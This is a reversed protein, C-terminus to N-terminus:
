LNTPIGFLPRTTLNKLTPIGEASRRPSNTAPFEPRWDNVLQLAQGAFYDRDETNGARDKGILKHSASSEAFRFAVARALSETNTVTALQAATWKNRLLDYVWQHASLLLEDVTVTANKNLNLLGDLGGLLKTAEGANEVLCVDRSLGV